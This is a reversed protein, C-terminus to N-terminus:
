KHMYSAMLKLRSILHPQYRGPQPQFFRGILYAFSISEPRNYWPWLTDPHPSKNDTRFQSVVQILVNMLYIVQFFVHYSLILDSDPRDSLLVYSVVWYYHTMFDTWIKTYFCWSGNTFNKYNQINQQNHLFFHDWCCPFFGTLHTIVMQHDNIVSWLWGHDTVLDYISIIINSRWFDDSTLLLLDGFIVISSSIMIM